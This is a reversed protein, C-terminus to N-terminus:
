LMMIIHTTFIKITYTEIYEQQRKKIGEAETLHMANKDKITDMKEHFIEKANRIKKFLHRAKGM